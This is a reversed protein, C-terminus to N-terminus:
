FYKYALKVLEKYKAKDESVQKAKNVLEPVDKLMEFMVTTDGSLVWLIDNYNAM